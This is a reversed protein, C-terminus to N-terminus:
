GLSIVTSVLANLFSEREEEPIFDLVSAAQKFGEPYTTINIEEREQMSKRRERSHRDRGYPMFIGRAPMDEM